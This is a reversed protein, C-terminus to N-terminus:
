GLRVSGAKGARQQFRAVRSIPGSKLVSSGPVVQLPSWCRVAGSTRERNKSVPLLPTTEGSRSSNERRRENNCWPRDAAIPRIPSRRFTPINFHQSTGGGRNKALSHPVAQFSLPHTKCPHLFACFLACSYSLFPSLQFYTSVDVWGGINKYFISAIPSLPHPDAFLSFPLSKASSLPALSIPNPRSPAAHPDLRPHLSAFVRFPYCAPILKNLSFCRIVPISPQVTTPFPQVTSPTPFTSSSLLTLLGLHSVSVRPMRLFLLTLVACGSPQAM